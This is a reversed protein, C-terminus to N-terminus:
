QEEFDTSKILIGPFLVRGIDDGCRAWRGLHSPVELSGMVQEMAGHHVERPFQIFAPRDKEQKPVEIQFPTLQSPL